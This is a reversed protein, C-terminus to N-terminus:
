DAADRKMESVGRLIRIALHQANRESMVPIM